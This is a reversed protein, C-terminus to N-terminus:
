VEGRAVRELQLAEKFGKFGENHIWHRLKYAIRVAHARGGILLATAVAIDAYSSRIIYAINLSYDETDQREIQTATEWNLIANVLISNLYTFNAAYFPNRPLEVLAIWMQSNITSDSLEKDKDILDDWFHLFNCIHELFQKASANGQCIDEYFRNFSGEEM